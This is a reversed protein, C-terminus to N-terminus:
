KYLRIETPPPEILGAFEANIDKPLDAKVQMFFKGVAVIQITSNCGSGTSAACNVIAINLVRRDSLGPPAPPPTVFVGTASYPASGNPAYNSTVATGGYLALWDNLDFPDGASASPSTGVAKVARSYTWLVGYDAFSPNNVPKNSASDTRISQRTPDPEMWNAPYGAGTTGFSYTKVNTDQPACANLNFRSNLAVQIPGSSIGTNGFVNGPAKLAAASTGTCVFASTYPASSHSPDCTTSGWADVPNILYPQGSGGLPGLEMINYSVGRQFGFETLENGAVSTRVGGKATNIACIGIPTMDRMFYGAVARGYTRTEQTGTGGVTSPVRAFFTALGGSPIDVKLFIKDAAQVDTTINTVPVMCADDPCSGASLNSKSITVPTSFNFSNQAAMAIAYAAASDVGAATQNLQKAGALAAADAANQLETRVVYTRGLDFVLAMFGFLVLLSLGFMIAVAGRQGQDPRGKVQTVTSM